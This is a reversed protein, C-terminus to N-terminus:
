LLAALRDFSAAVGREMGSALADDRLRKSEYSVVMTVTTAGDLEDFTTTVIAEGNAMAPDDFREAHVIREPPVIERYTGVLGFEHGAADNRWRYRLTGGPRLDIDCIPMSWGDPGLLWRKVFEPNTFAAFVARRPAAFVRTM